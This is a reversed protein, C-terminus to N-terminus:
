CENLLYKTSTFFVYESLWILTAVSQFVTYKKIEAVNYEVHIWVLPIVYVYVAVM